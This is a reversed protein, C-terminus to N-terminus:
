SYLPSLGGARTVEQTTSLTLPICEGNGWSWANWPMRVSKTWRLGVEETIDEFPNVIRRLFCFCFVKHPPGPHSMRNLTWSKTEARTMIESTRPNLGWTLSQVSLM